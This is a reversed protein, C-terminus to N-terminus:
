SYFDQRAGDARALRAEAGPRTAIGLRTADSEVEWGGLKVRCQLSVEQFDVCVGVLEAGKRAAREPCWPAEEVILEVTKLRRQRAVDYRYRVCVLQDGYQALLKKMGKQGPQLTVRARVSQAERVRSGRDRSVVGATQM